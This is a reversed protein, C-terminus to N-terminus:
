FCGRLLGEPRGDNAKAIHHVVCSPVGEAANRPKSGICFDTWGRHRPQDVAFHIGRKPHDRPNRGCKLQGQSEPYVGAIDKGLGAPKERRM